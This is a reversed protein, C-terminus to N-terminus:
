CTSTVKSRYLDQLQPVVPGEPITRRNVSMLPAIEIVSNTLFAEDAAVLDRMTYRGTEYPIGHEEAIQLVQQRTIGNLLPFTTDPTHITGERVLFINTTAGECLFGSETLFIVEDKGVKKINHQALLYPLYNLSKIRPLFSESVYPTRTTTTHFCRAVPTYPTAMILVNPEHCEDPNPRLPGAGASVVIKVTADDCIGRHELLQYAASRLDDPPQSLDIRLRKLSEYLRGLHQELAFIGSGPYFRMTEFVGLGYLFGYDNVPLRAETLSYFEGNLFVDDTICGKDLRTDM